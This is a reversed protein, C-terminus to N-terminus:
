RARGVAKATIEDYTGELDTRVLGTVLRAFDQRDVLRVLATADPNLGLREAAQLARLDAFPFLEPWSRQTERFFIDVGVDGIGKCEKLLAREVAPDAGAAARLRRLDGRYCDLLLNATDALMTATREDYRAYGSQNLTRVRETWSSNAMSRATTWGRAFLAEAADFAVGARIRASMLLAMVLLKFLGSPTELSHIGLQEGYTHPYHALVVHAVDQSSPRAMVISTGGELADRREVGRARRGSV